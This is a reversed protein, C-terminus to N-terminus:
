APRFKVLTTDATVDDYEAVVAMGVRVTSPDCGVINTTLRPGEDLEVIAIVYPCDEAWGPATARHAVTFSYVTGRGSVEVWELEDGAGFPSVSRPYYIFQGAKMSRQLFLRHRRAAEWFPRTADNPEPLPKSYPAPETM